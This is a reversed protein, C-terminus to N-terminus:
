GGYFDAILAAHDSPRELIPVGRQVAELAHWPETFAQNTIVTHHCTRM